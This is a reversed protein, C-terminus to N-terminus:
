AEGVIRAVQSARVAAERTYDASQEIGLIEAWGARQAGVIESGVGAYPVLLRDGEIFLLRGLWETLPEPKQTPHKRAPGKVKPCYYFRSACGSDLYEVSKHNKNGWKTGAVIAARSRESRRGTVSTVGSHRDLARAAEENLALNAPWRGVDTRCADINLPRPSRGGPSRVLLIPEYAPKLLADSKAQGEGYLWMLTDAVAFGADELHVALRHFTRTGGFILANSGPKLVRALESWVERPPLVKDWGLGLFKLGYPPDSLAAGFHAPPLTRMVELCDGTRLDIM